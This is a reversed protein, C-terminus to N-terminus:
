KALLMLKEPAVQEGALEQAALELQKQRVEQLKKWKDPEQALSKEAQVLRQFSESNRLSRVLAHAQDYVEMATLVEKIHKEAKHNLM